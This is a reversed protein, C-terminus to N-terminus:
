LHDLDPHYSLHDTQQSERTQVVLTIEGDSSQSPWGISGNAPPLTMEGTRMGEPPEDV